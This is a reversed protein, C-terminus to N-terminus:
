SLTCLGVSKIFVNYGKPNVQFELQFHVFFLNNLLNDTDVVASLIRGSPLNRSSLSFASFPAVINVFKMRSLQPVVFVIITREVGVHTPVRLILLFDAFHDLSTISSTIRMSIAMAPSVITRLVSLAYSKLPSPTMDPRHSFDLMIQGEEQM